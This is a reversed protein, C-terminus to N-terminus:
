KQCAAGCWVVSKKPSMRVAFERTFCASGGRRAREGKPAPPAAPKNGAQRTRSCTSCRTRTSGPHCSCQKTHTTPSRSKGRSVSELLSFAVPCSVELRTCKALSPVGGAIAADLQHVLKFHKDDLDVVPAKEVGEALQLTFNESIAYVDSRLLLLLLDNCKKVPAFRKRTVVIADAGDFCEIAAGMATELQFAPTSKDSQPGATKSNKIMPLAVALQIGFPVALMKEQHSRPFVKAYAAQDAKPLRRFTLTRAIRSVTHSGLGDSPTHVFDGIHAINGNRVQVGLGAM